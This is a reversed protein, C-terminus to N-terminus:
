HSKTPRAPASNAPAVNERTTPLLVETLREATEAGLEYFVGDALKRLMRALARKVDAEAFKGKRAPQAELFAVKVLELLRVRGGIQFVPHPQAKIPGRIQEHFTLITALLVGETEPVEIPPPDNRDTEALELHWYRRFDADVEFRHLVTGADEALEDMSDKIDSFDELQLEELEIHSFVSGSIDHDSYRDERFCEKLYSTRLRRAVQSITLQQGERRYEAADRHPPLASCLKAGVHYGLQRYSESQQSTFFQNLTSEDPFGPHTNRFQQLDVEESGDLAMQVYFLLGERPGSETNEAPYRVRMALLQQPVEAGASDESQDTEPKRARRIRQVDIPKESDLDLFEIGHETRALRIVDALAGLEYKDNNCGADAVIMLRCRRRLLEELGFFEHFGGDAVHCIDQQSIHSPRTYNLCERAVRWASVRSPAQKGPVPLWRGLRLNFLSMLLALSIDGTMLPSLAAGSMTVADLVSLKGDSYEKSSQYHYVGGGCYLESFVFPETHFVATGGDDRLTLTSALFLQYPMGRDTTGLECIRPARLERSRDLPSTDRNRFATEIFNGLIARQYYQYLPQMQNWDFWLLVYLCAAWTGLWTLRSWQDAAVVVPTSALVRTKIIAPYLAELLLRNFARRDPEAWSELSAVVSGDEGFQMNISGQSPAVARRWYDRLLAGEAMEGWRGTIFSNDSLTTVSDDEFHEDDASDSRFEARKMLAIALNSNDLSENLPKLVGDKLHTRAADVKWQYKRIDSEADISVLVSRAAHWTGQLSWIPRNDWQEQKTDGSVDRTFQDVDKWERHYDDWTQPARADAHLVPKPEVNEPLGELMSLFAQQDLIDSILVDPTRNNTFGSINERAMFHVMAFFPLILITYSLTARAIKQWIPAHEQGSHLIRKMGLLPILQLLGATLALWTAFHNLSFAEELSDTHGVSTLGNGMFVAVSILLCILFLCFMVRHMQRWGESHRTKLYLIARAWWFVLFMAAPIFAVLLEGGSFAMNLPTYWNQRFWDMDLSRWFLAVMTGLVGLCCLYTGLTIATHIVYRRGLRLVDSLYSKPRTVGTENLVRKTRPDVDLNAEETEHFSRGDATQSVLTAVHAAAYGGGSVSSLYDIYRLLGRHSFVQLLGMNFMASRIGGGSLALGVLDASVDQEEKEPIGAVERRKKIRHLEEPLVENTFQAARSDRTM